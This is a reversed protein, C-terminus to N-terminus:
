TSPVVGTAKIRHVIEIWEVLQEEKFVATGDTEMRARVKDMDMILYDIEPKAIALRRKAISERCRLIAEQFTKGEGTVYLELCTHLKKNQSAAQWVQEAASQLKLTVLMRGAITADAIYFRYEAPISKLTDGWNSNDTM